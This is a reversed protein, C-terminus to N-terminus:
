GGILKRMRILLGGRKTTLDRLLSKQDACPHWRKGNGGMIWGNGYSMSPSQRKLHAAFSIM